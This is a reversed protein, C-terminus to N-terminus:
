AHHYREFTEERLWETTAKFNHIPTPLMELYTTSRILDAPKGHIQVKDFLNAVGNNLGLKMLTGRLTANSNHLAKNQSLALLNHAIAAGQQYAVQALAPQSQNQVQVCDGAAFVEPFDPLQLTETVILQGHKSINEPTLQSHINEVLPNLSTGATWITTYTALSQVENSSKEQYNISEKTVSKVVTELKLEISVTRKELAILADKQLHANADGALIKNAHNILVIRLEKLKGGLPAYWSPLLDALTAAMEVGSPGAGVIVFTLLAQKLEPDNTTLSQELCQKLHEKLAITEEKSRFPFSNEKAGETGLYGQVSGLGLVLNHYNYIKGTTLQLKKQSLDLKTVEDQIFNIDSGKLLEAYNPCVVDEPLEETLLEYLMPKFVFQSRPDILIIDSIYRQHRLHLATFLGTFGAGIIITPETANLMFKFGRLRM